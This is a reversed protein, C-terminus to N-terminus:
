PSRFMCDSWFARFPAGIAARADAATQAGVQNQDVSVCAHVNTVRQGNPRSPASAGPERGAPVRAQCVVLGDAM